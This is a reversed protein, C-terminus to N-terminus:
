GRSKRKKKEKFQRTRKCAPVKETTKEKDQAMLNAGFMSNVIGNKKRRFDHDSEAM